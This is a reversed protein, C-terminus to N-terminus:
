TDSDDHNKGRILGNCEITFNDEIIDVYAARGEKDLVDALKSLLNLIINNKMGWPIHKDLREKLEDPIHVNTRPM